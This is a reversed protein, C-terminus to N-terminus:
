HTTYISFRELFELVFIAVELTLLLVNNRDQSAKYMQQYPPNQFSRGLDWLLCGAERQNRIQAHEGPDYPPQGVEM